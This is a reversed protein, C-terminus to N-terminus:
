FCGRSFPAVSRGDGTPMSPYFGQSLFGCSSSAPEAWAHRRCGPWSDVSYPCGCLRLSPPGNGARSPRPRWGPPRSAAPPDCPNSSHRVSTFLSALHPVACRQPRLKAYVSQWAPCRDCECIQRRARRPANPGSDRERGLSIRADHRHSCAWVGSYSKGLSPFNRVPRGHLRRESGQQHETQNACDNRGVTVLYGRAPSVLQERPSRRFPQQLARASRATWIGLSFGVQRINPRRFRSIRPPSTM